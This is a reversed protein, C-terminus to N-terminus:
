TGRLGRAREAGETVARELKELCNRDVCADITTRRPDCAAGNVNEYWGSRFGHGKPGVFGCFDCQIYDLKAM